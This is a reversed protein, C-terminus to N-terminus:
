GPGGSLSDRIRSVIREISGQEVTAVQVPVPAEVEEEKPKSCGALMVVVLAYGLRSRLPANGM